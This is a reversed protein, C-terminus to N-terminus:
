SRRRRVLSAAAVGGLALAAPEPVAVPVDPATSQLDSWVFADWSGDTLLNGGGQGWEWGSQGMVWHSWWDDGNLGEGSFHYGGFDHALVFEGWASSKTAIDYDSAADIARLADLTTPSGDYHYEFLYSQPGFDIVFNSTNAGQGVSLSVIAEGATVPKAAPLGSVADIVMRGAGTPVEFKVYQVSPLGTESLDLWTGGASGNLATRIQEYTKGGLDAASGLYPKSSSSSVTGLPQQYNSISTDLYANTPSTFQIVNGGNLTKWTNGDQSVHVIAGPFQPTAFTAVPNTSTGTSSTSVFGNNVFVGVHRGNAPVEASLKLTMEGGEGIIVIDNSSFPPNFPNVAGFGSNGNISGLAAGAIQYDPRANGPAYSVVQEGSIGAAAAAAVLSPAVAGLVSSVRVM